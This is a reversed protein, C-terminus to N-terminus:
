SPEETGFITLYSLISLILSYLSLTSVRSGISTLYQHSAVQFCLDGRSLPSLSTLFFVCMEALLHSVDQLCLGRVHGLADPLAWM